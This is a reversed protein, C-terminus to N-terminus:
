PGLEGFRSNEFCFWLITSQNVYFQYIEPSFVHFEDFYVGILVANGNGKDNIVLPGGSDVTTQSYLYM